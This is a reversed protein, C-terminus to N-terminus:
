VIVVRSENATWRTNVDGRSGFGGVPIPMWPSCLRCVSRMTFTCCISTQYFAHVLSSWIGSVNSFCGGDNSNKYVTLTTMETVASAYKITIKIGSHMCNQREYMLKLYFSMLRGVASCTQM